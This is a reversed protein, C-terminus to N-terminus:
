DGPEDNKKMNVVLDPEHTVHLFGKKRLLAIIGMEEARSKVRYDNKLEFYKLIFFRRVPNV